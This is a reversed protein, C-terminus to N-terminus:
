SYAAITDHQALFPTVISMASCGSLFFFVRVLNTHSSRACVFSLGTSSPSPDYSIGM